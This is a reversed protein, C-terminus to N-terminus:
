STQSSNPSIPPPPIIQCPKLSTAREKSTPSHKKTNNNTFNNQTHNQQTPTHPSIHKKLTRMHPQLKL